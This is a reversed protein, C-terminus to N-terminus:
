SDVPPVAVDSSLPFPFFPGYQLLVLGPAHAADPRRDPSDTEKRFASCCCLCVSCRSQADSVVALLVCAHHM